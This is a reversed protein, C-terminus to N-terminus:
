DPSSYTRNFYMDLAKTFSIDLGVLSAFAHSVQPSKFFEPIDTKYSEDYGICSINRQKVEKKSITTCLTRKVMRGLVPDTTDSLEIFDLNDAVSNDPVEDGIWGYLGLRLTETIYGSSESQIVNVVRVLIYKGLYKDIAREDIVKYCLLAGERWPSTWIWSPKRVKKAVTMRSMLTSKLENLVEIRKKYNKENGPTNWRYLDSGNEIFDIANYKVYNILRGKKWQILALAFWFVPEDETGKVEFYYKDMVVQTAEENSKGAVILEVYDDRVDCAFDDSFIATGWAGM